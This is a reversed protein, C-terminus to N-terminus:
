FAALYGGRLRAVLEPTLPSGKETLKSVAQITESGAVLQLLGEAVVPAFFAGINIGMYFISYASDKLPSGPPYLNGVMTSINPKFFGNGVFLLALAVYYVSFSGLGLLIYGAAFFVGGILVARRYGLFRDAVLGGILPTAYIFMLYYSWLNTAQDKSWGFGGRQLYYTMIAAATYFGYREWLETAFLIYLERPHREKSPGVDASSM